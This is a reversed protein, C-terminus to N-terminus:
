FIKRIKWVNDTFNPVDLRPERSFFVPDQVKMGALHLLQPLKRSSEHNGQQRHLVAASIRNKGSNGNKRSRLPLVNFNLDLPLLPREVANSMWPLFKFYIVKTKESVLFQISKTSSPNLFEFNSSM